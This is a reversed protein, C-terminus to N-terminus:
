GLRAQAVDYVKQLETRLQETMESVARRSVRGGKTPAPPDVPQGVIMVLKKPWLMKAHPPMAAASGAIGVPVVPVGTRAAVFCPGDFLHEVAPGSQRTGEPFMVLPEGRELVRQCAKLAERDATGRAVPFGGMTSLFLANFKKNWLEAKGMYRMRRKTVVGVLPTDIYSRHVPAVVYAGSTPLNATGELTLRCWVRAVIFTVWWFFRYVIRQRWSMDQGWREADDAYTALGAQGTM